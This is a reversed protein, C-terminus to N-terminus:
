PSRSRQRRLLLCARAAGGHLRPDERADWAACERIHFPAAGTPEYFMGGRRLIRPTEAVVAITVQTPGNQAFAHTWNEIGFNV